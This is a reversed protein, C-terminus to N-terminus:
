AIRRNKRKLGLFAAGFLMLMASTPEPIVTYGSAHWLSVSPVTVVELDTTIHSSIASYAEANSRAYVYGTSSNVLEVYYAYGSLNSGINAAFSGVDDGTVGVLTGAVTGDDLITNETVYSESAFGSRKGGSNWSTIDSDTASAVVIRAVNWNGASSGLSSTNDSSVQWYLYSANAAMAACMCITTLFVKKM